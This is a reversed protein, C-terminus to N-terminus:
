TLKFFRISYENDSTYHIVDEIINKTTSFVIRNFKELNSALATWYQPYVSEFRQREAQLASARGVSSYGGALIIVNM